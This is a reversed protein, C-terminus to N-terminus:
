AGGNEGRIRQWERHLLVANRNNAKFAVDAIVDVVPVLGLLWDMALNAGMRAIVRKRVGMRVADGVILAGLGTAVTDGVVPVLGLISDWGFRIRTGPVRYRSDLWKALALSRPLGAPPTRAGRDAPEEGPVAADRPARTRGDRRVGARAPVGSSAPM